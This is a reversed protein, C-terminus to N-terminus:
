FQVSSNSREFDEKLVADPDVVIRSQTSSSPASAFLRDGEVAVTGIFFLSVALTLLELSGRPALDPLKDDNEDNQSSLFVTSCGLNEKNTWHAAKECSPIIKLLHQRCTFAITMNCPLIFICLSLFLDVKRTM